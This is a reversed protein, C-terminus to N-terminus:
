TTKGPTIYKMFDHYCECGPNADKYKYGQEEMMSETSTVDFEIILRAPQQSLLLKKTLQGPLIQVKWEWYGLM